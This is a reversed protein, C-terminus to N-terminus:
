TALWCQIHNGKLLDPQTRQVVQEHDRWFSNNSQIKKNLAPATHSAKVQRISIDESCGVFGVGRVVGDLGAM